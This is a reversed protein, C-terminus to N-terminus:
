CFHNNYFIIDDELYDELKDILRKPLWESCPRKSWDPRYQSKYSVFKSIDGNNEAVFHSISENLSKTEWVLRNKVLEGEYEFFNKQTKGLFTHVECSTELKNILAERNNPVKELYCSFFWASIFRQIPERIVGVLTMNQLQTESIIGLRVMETPTLHGLLPFLQNEVLIDKPIAYPSVGRVQEVTLSPLNKGSVPVDNVDNRYGTYIDAEGLIGSDVLMAQCSTSGVKLVRVFVFNNEYSVIM